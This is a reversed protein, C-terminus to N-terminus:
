NGTIDGSIGSSADVWSGNNGAHYTWGWWSLDFGSVNDFYFTTWDSSNSCGFANCQYNFTGISGRVRNDPSSKLTASFVTSSYGGEFTGVVGEGVAGTGGPSIGAFTTFSGQFKVTACFTNTDTQVVQIQRLFDDLAWTNGAVGSDADNLVKEVVNIVLTGSPCASIGSHLQAGWDLHEGPAAFVSATSSLVFSAVVSISRRM